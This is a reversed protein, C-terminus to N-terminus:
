SELWNRTNCEVMLRLYHRSTAANCSNTIGFIYCAATVCWLMSKPNDILTKSPM